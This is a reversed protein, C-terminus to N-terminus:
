SRDQQPLMVQALFSFLILLQSVQVSTLTLTNTEGAPKLVLSRTLTQASSMAALGVFALLALIKISKM